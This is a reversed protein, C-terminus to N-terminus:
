HLIAVRSFVQFSLLCLTKEEQWYFVKWGKNYPRFSLTEATGGQNAYLGARVHVDYHVREHYRHFNRGTMSVESPGERGM